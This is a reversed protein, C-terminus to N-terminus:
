IKILQLDVYVPYHDSSIKTMKDKIIEHHLLNWYQNIFVKDIRILPRPTYSPFTYFRNKKIQSKQILFKTSDYFGKQEFLKDVRELRDNTDGLIITPSNRMMELFASSLIQKVQWLREFNALGLHMNLIGIDVTPLDSPVKNKFKKIKFEEFSISDKLLDRPLLIKTMLCGRRKKIGWTINLNESHIIPFRSLIANGYAGKKLYVNLGLEYHFGLGLALEYALDEYRSRPVLFDVEQLCIIDAQSKKLIEIIRDLSYKGDNGIAKHINYTLVRIM